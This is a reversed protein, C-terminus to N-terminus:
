NSVRYWNSALLLRITFESVIGPNEITPNMYENPLFVKDWHSGASGNGGEQELPVYTLSPCGYYQKAYNVVDELIITQYTEGNISQSGLTESIPRM